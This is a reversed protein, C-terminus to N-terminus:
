AGEAAGLEELRRKMIRRKAPPLDKEALLRRVGDAFM